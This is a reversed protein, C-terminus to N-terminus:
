VKKFMFQQQKERNELGPAQALQFMSIPAVEWNLVDRNLLLRMANGMREIAELLLYNEKACSIRLYGESSDIGFGSGPVTAVGASLLFYNAIDVDTKIEQNTKPDKKGILQKASVLLYFAGGPEQAIKFGQQKFAHSATEVNNKYEQQANVLWANHPNELYNAVAFRLAAQTRYPVSSIGNTQRPLMAKIITAHAAVMGIREGPAGLLGKAGSNIVVCRDKLQPAVDLVTVHQQYNFDRYVDDIIILTDPYKELVKALRLAEEHTLAIGSPNNPYNFIVAKTQPYNQLASELAEASPRFNNELTPIKKLTGGWEQIQSTYAAFFPEFTLIIDDPKEVLVSFINSLAGSGGLTVMVEEKKFSVHPYYYNYLKVIADLTDPEGQAASYGQAAKTPQMNELAQMVNPNASLHPQGISLDILDSLGAQQRELKVAPIKQFIQRIQSVPIEARKTLRFM